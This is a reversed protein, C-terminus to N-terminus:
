MKIRFDHWLIKLRPVIKSGIVWGCESKFVKGCNVFRVELYKWLKSDFEVYNTCSLYKIEFTGITFRIDFRLSIYNPVPWMTCGRLMQKLHVLDYLVMAGTNEFNLWCQYNESKMCHSSTYERRMGSTIIARIDLNFLPLYLQHSRPQPWM